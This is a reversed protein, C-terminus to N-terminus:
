FPRYYDWGPEQDSRKRMAIMQTGPSRWHMPNHGALLHGTMAGLDVAAELLRRRLPRKWDIQEYDRHTLALRTVRRVSPMQCDHFVVIGGTRLLQHVYHFDVLTYDFTHWGDIFAFDIRVGEEILRPLCCDSRQEHLEVLSGYGARDLTSMGASSFDQSQCPDIAIHKIGGAERLARCIYLASLGCALGIELTVKPRSSLVLRYLREGQEPTVASSIPALRGQGDITAGAQYIERVIPETDATMRYPMLRRALARVTV